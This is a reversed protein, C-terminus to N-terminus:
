PPWGTWGSTRSRCTVGGSPRILRNLRMVTRMAAGDQQVAEVAVDLAARLARLPSEGPPRSALEAAVVPFQEDVGSVRGVRSACGQDSRLLGANELRVGPLVNFNPRPDAGQMYGPVRRAAIDDRQRGPALPEVEGAIENLMRTLEGGRLDIEGGVGVTGQGPAAARFEQGADPALVRADRGGM